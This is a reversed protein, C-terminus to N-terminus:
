AQHEGLMGQQVFYAEIERIRPHTETIDSCVEAVRSRATDLDDPDVGCTRCAQLCIEYIVLAIPRPDHICSTRRQPFHSINDPMISGRPKAAM